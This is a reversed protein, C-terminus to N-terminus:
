PRAGQEDSARWRRSARRQAKAPRRGPRATRGSYSWRATAVTVEAATRRGSAAGTAPGPGPSRNCAKTNTVQTATNRARRPHAMAAAEAAPPPLKATNVRHLVRSRGRPFTGGGQTSMAHPAGRCRGRLRPLPGRTVGSDRPRHGQLQMGYQKTGEDRPHSPMIRGARRAPVGRRTPGRAAGPGAPRSRKVGHVTVVATVATVASEVHRPVSARRDRGSKEPGRPSTGSQGSGAAPRRSRPRQRSTTVTM